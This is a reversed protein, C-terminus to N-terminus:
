DQGPDDWTPMTPNDQAAEKFLFFLFMDAGFLPLRLKRAWCFRGEAALSDGLVRCEVWFFIRVGGGVCFFNSGKLEFGALPLPYTEWENKPYEPSPIEDERGDVRLSAYSEDMKTRAEDLPIM